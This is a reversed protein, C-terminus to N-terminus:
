AIVEATSTFPLEHSRGIIALYRKLWATSVYGPTAYEAVNPGHTLTAFLCEAIDDCPGAGCARDICSLGGIEVLSEIWPQRDRASNFDASSMSSATIQAHTPM